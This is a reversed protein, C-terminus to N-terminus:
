AMSEAWPMETLAAKMAQPAAPVWLDGPRSVM